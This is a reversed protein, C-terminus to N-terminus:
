YVSKVFSKFYLVNDVYLLNLVCYGRNREKQIERREKM